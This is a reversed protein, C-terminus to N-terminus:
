WTMLVGVILVLLRLLGLGILCIVVRVVRLLRVWVFDFVFLGCVLWFCYCGFMFVIMFGFNWSFCPLCLRLRLAGFELMM